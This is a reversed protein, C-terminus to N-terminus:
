DQGKGEETQLADGWEEEFSKLAETAAAEADKMAEELQIELRAAEKITNCGYDRKLEELLQAEAGEARAAEREAEEVVQKLKNFRQIDLPM